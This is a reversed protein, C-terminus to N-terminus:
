IVGGAVEIVEDGGSELMEECRDGDGNGVKEEEAARSGSSAGHAGGCRQKKIVEMVNGRRISRRTPEQREDREGGWTVSAGRKFSNDVQVALMPAKGGGAERAILQKPQGGGGSKDRGRV